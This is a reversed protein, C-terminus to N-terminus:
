KGLYFSSIPAVKAYAGGNNWDLGYEIKNTTFNTVYDDSEVECLGNETHVKYYAKLIASSGDANFLEPVDMAVYNYSNSTIYDYDISSGVYNLLPQSAYSTYSSSGPRYCKNGAIVTGDSNVAWVYPINTAVFTHLAPVYIDAGSGNTNWWMSNDLGRKGPVIDTLAYGNIHPVCPNGGACYDTLVIDPSETNILTYGDHMNYTSIWAQSGDLSPYVVDVYTSGLSALTFTETVTTEQNLSNSSNDYTLAYKNCLIASSCNYVWKGDTSIAYGFNPHTVSLNSNGNITNVKYTIFQKAYGPASENSCDYGKSDTAVLYTCQQVTLYSNHDVSQIFYALPYSFTTNNTYNGGPNFAYTYFSCSGNAPISSMNFCNDPNSNKTFLSSILGIGPNYNYEYENGYVAKQAYRWNQDVFGVNVYATSMAPLNYSPITVAVNNPNTFKLKYLTHSGITSIDVYSLKNNNLDLMDIHLPVLDTKSTSDNTSDGGSSSGGGGGGGCAAVICIAPIIRLFQKIQYGLNPVLKNAM